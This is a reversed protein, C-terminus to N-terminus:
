GRPSQHATSFGLFSYRQGTAETHPTKHSRCVRPERRAEVPVPKFGRHAFSHLYETGELSEVVDRLARGKRRLTTTSAQTGKCAQVDLSPGGGRLLGVASVSPPM